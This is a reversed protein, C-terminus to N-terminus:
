TRADATPYPPYRPPAPAPTAPVPEPRPLTVCEGKPPTGVAVGALEMHGTSRAHELLENVREGADAISSADLDLLVTAQFRM